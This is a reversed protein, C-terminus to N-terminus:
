SSMAMLTVHGVKAPLWHFIPQVRSYECDVTWPEPNAIISRMFEPQLAKNSFGKM